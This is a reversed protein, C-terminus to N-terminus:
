VDQKVARFDELGPLVRIHKHTQSPRIRRFSGEIHRHVGCISLDMGERGFFPVVVSVAGPFQAFTDRDDVSSHRVYEFPHSHAQGILVLPTGVIAGLAEANTAASTSVRGGTTDANPVVLTTVVAQDDHQLGFWYVVGESDEIEAFSVLLRATEELLTTTVYVVPTTGNM